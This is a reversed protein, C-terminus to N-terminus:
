VCRLRAIMKGNSAIRTSVTNFAASHFLVRGRLGGGPRRRHVNGVGRRGGRAGARGHEGDRTRRFRGVRDPKGEALILANRIPGAARGHKELDAPFAELAGRRLKAWRGAPTDAGPVAPHIIVSEQMPELGDLVSALLDWDDFIRGGRVLVRMVLLGEWDVIDRWVGLSPPHLIGSFSQSCEDNDVVGVPTSSKGRRGSARRVGRRAV